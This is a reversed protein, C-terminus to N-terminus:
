LSLHQSLDAQERIPNLRDAGVSVAKWFSFLMRESFLSSCRSRCNKTCLGTKGPLNASVGLSVLFFFAMTSGSRATIWININDSGFKLVFASKKGRGCITWLPQCVFKCRMFSSRSRALFRPLESIVEEPPQQETHLFRSYSCPVRVTAWPRM